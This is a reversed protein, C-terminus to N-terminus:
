EPRRSERARGAVHRLTPYSPTRGQLLRQATAHPVDLATAAQSVSVGHSRLGMILEILQETAECADHAYEGILGMDAVIQPDGMDAVIQTPTTTGM